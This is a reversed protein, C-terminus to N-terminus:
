VTCQCAGRYLICPCAPTSRIRAKSSLTPTRRHVSTSPAGSGVCHPLPTAAAQPQPSLGGQKKVIVCSASVAPRRPGGGLMRAAAAPAEAVAHATCQRARVRARWPSRRAWSSRRASGAAASGPPASSLKTRQQQWVCGWLTSRASPEGVLPATGTAAQLHALVRPPLEGLFLLLHQGLDLALRAAETSVHSWPQPM